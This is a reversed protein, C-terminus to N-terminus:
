KTQIIEYENSESSESQVNRKRGELLQALRRQGHHSSITQGTMPTHTKFLLHRCITIMCICIIVFSTAPIVVYNFLLIAAKVKTLKECDGYIEPSERCGVPTLTASICTNGLDNSNVSDTAISAICPILNLLILSAHMKKEIRERFEGDSTKRRIKLLIYVCLAGMYMPAIGQGFTFLIGQVRCSNRNGIGWIAFPAPPVLFPGLTAMLSLLADAASYIFIIRRYPSALGVESKVIAGAIFLSSMLSLPATSIQVTYLAEADKMNEGSGYAKNCIVLRLNTAFALNFPPSLLIKQFSSEKVTVLM